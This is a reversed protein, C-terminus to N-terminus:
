ASSDRRHPHEHLTPVLQVFDSRFHRTTSPKCCLGIWSSRWSLDHCYPNNFDSSSGCDSNTYLVKLVQVNEGEIHLIVASM